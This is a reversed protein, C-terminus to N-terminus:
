VFSDFFDEDIDKIVYTEKQQVWVNYKFMLDILHKWDILIINHWTKTSDEAKKIASKDFSSTTFFIGRKVWNSVLAWIFDQMEKWHVISNEWYKKAQIFIKDFWLSDWKIIGDVWGDHSKKTEIFTWYWMAECLIGVIIEFAYPDVERCRELLEDKKPAEILKFSDQFIEEPTREDNLSTNNHIQKDWKDRWKHFSSNIFDSDKKLYELTMTKWEKLFNTWKETIKYTWKEVRSLYNWVFLYYIARHARWYILPENSKWALVDISYNPFYKEQIEKKADHETIKRWGYYTELVPMFYQYFKPYESYDSIMIIYSNLYLVTLYYLFFENSKL